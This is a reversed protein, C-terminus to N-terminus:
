ITITLSFNNQLSKVLMKQLLNDFRFLLDDDKNTILKIITSFDEVYKNHELDSGGTTALRAERVSYAFANNILRLAEFTYKTNDAKRVTLDFQLYANGM